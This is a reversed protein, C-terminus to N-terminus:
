TNTKCRMNQLLLLFVWSCVEKVGSDIISSEKLEEESLLM